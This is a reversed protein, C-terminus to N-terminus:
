GALKVGRHSHGEGLWGLAGTLTPQAPLAREHGRSHQGPCAAEGEQAELEKDTFHQLCAM